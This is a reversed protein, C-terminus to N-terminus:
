PRTDESPLTFRTTIGGSVERSGLDFEIKHMALEANSEFQKLAFGKGIM